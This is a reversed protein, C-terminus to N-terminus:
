SRRGEYGSTTVIKADMAGAVKTFAQDVRRAAHNGVAEKLDSTLAEKEEALAAVVIAKIDDGSEITNGLNTPAALALEAAHPPMNLTPASPVLAAVDSSAATSGHNSRFTGHPSRSNGNARGRPSSGTNEPTAKFM